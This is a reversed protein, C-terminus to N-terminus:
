FLLYSSSWSFFLIDAILFMQLLFLKNPIRLMDFETLFIISIEQLFTKGDFDTDEIQVSLMPINSENDFGQMNFLTKCYNNLKFSYYYKKFPCKIKCDVLVVVSVVVVVVVVVLILVFLLVILLVFLWLLLLLKCKLIATVFRGAMM